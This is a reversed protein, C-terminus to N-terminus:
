APSLRSRLLGELETRGVSRPNFQGTWQRAAEEALAPVLEARVGHAALAPEFGAAALSDALWDLLVELAATEDHGPGVLGGARALEAYRARAVHDDANFRVVATLGLGVALGHALGCRASL